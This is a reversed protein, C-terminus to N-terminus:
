EEHSWSIRKVSRISKPPKSQGELFQNSWPDAKAPEQKPKGVFLLAEEVPRNLKFPIRSAHIAM